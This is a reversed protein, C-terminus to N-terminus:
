YIKGTMAETFETILEANPMLAPDELTQFHVFNNIKSTDFQHHNKLTNFVGWNMKLSGDPCQDFSMRPNGDSDPVTFLVAQGLESRYFGDEYPDISAIEYHFTLNRM